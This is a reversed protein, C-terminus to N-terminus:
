CSYLFCFSPWQWRVCDKQFVLSATKDGMTGQTVRHRRANHSIKLVGHRYCRWRLLM